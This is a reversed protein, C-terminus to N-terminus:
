EYNVDKLNNVVRRSFWALLTAPLWLCIILLFSMGGFVLAAFNHYRKIPLSPAVVDPHKTPVEWWKQRWIDDINQWGENHKLLCFGSGDASHVYIQGQTSRVFPGTQGLPDSQSPTVWWVRSCDPNANVEIPKLGAWYVVGAAVLGCIGLFLVFHRLGRFAALFMIAPINGTTHAYEHDM